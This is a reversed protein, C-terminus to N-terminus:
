REKPGYDHDLSWGLNFEAAFEELEAPLVARPIVIKGVGGNDLQGHHGANGMPGGCVAVLVRRDWVIVVRPTFRGPGRSSLDDGRAVPEWVGSADSTWAGNPYERKIRQKPILHAAVLRGDCSGAAALGRAVVWCRVAAV